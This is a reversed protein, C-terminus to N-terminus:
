RHQKAQGGAGVGVVRPLAGDAATQEAGRGTRRDAPGGATSAAGREARRDATPNAGHGARRCGRPRRRRAIIRGRAVATIRRRTVATIRRRRGRIGAVLRTMAPVAGNAGDRALLLLFGH